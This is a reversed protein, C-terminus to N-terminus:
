EIKPLTHKAEIDGLYVVFCYEVEGDKYSPESKIIIQLNKTTIDRYIVKGDMTGEFLQEYAIVGYYNGDTGLKLDSVYEVKFWTVQVNSYNLLKVKNLYQRIPFKRRASTDKLSTVEVQASENIFLKVANDIAVPVDLPDSQKDSIIKIFDGLDEVRKLALTSYYEQFDPDEPKLCPKRQAFTSHSLILFCSILFVRLNLKM